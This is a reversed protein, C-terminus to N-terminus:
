PTAISPSDADGHSGARAAGDLKRAMKLLASNLAVQRNEGLSDAATEISEQFDLYVSQMLTHGEPTLTLTTEDGSAPATSRVLLGRNSLGHALMEAAGDTVELYRAVTAESIGSEEAIRGLVQLELGTVGADRALNGRISELARLFVQASFSLGSLAHNDGILRYM